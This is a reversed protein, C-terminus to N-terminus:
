VCAPVIRFLLAPLLGWLSLRGPVSLSPTCAAPACASPACAAPACAVRCGFGWFRGPVNLTPRPPLRLAPEEVDGWEDSDSSGYLPLQVVLQFRRTVHVKGRSSAHGAWVQADGRPCERTPPMAKRPPVPPSGHAADARSGSSTPLHECAAHACICVRVRVCVEITNGSSMFDSRRLKILATQGETCTTPGAELKEHRAMGSFKVGWSMWKVQRALWIRRALSHTDPSCIRWRTLLFFDASLAAHM